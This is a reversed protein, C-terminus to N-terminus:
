IKRKMRMYTSKEQEEMREIAYRLTTRPMEGAFRNLFNRLTSIDKKGIERLMWGNAKQILDHNHRLLATINRLATTFDGARIPTLTSVIAIRQAWLNRSKCLKPTPDNGALLEQGIIYPASLDVLDWNNIASAHKLYFSAIDSRVSRDKDRRYREVLCLLASLRHEHIPSALMSSITYEDTNYASKAVKRNDPVMVGIFIDGEGYEGKGTKFFRALVSIKEEKAVRNLAEKWKDTTMM